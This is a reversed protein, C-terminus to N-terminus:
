DICYFSESINKSLIFISQFSVHDDSVVFSDHMYSLDQSPMQSFIDDTIPRMPRNLYSPKNNAAMNQVSKQYFAMM